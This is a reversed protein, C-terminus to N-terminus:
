PQIRFAVHFAVFPGNPIPKVAVDYHLEHITGPVVVVAFDPLELCVLADEITQAANRMTRPSDDPFWIMSTVWRVINAAPMAAAIVQQSTPATSPVPRSSLQAM